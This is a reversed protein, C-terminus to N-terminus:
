SSPRAARGSRRAARRLARQREVFGVVEREGLEGALDAERQVVHLEVGRQLLREVLHAALGVLEARRAGADDLRGVGLAAADLAVQVVARLLVEDRERHAHAERALDGVGIGLLGLRHEVLDAEVELFRHLLQAVERVADVRRQEHVAAEGLRQAGGGAAGRQGVDTSASPM